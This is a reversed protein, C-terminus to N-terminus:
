ERTEKLLPTVNLALQTTSTSGDIRRSISQV